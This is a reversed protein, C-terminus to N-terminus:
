FRCILFSTWPYLESLASCDPSLYRMWEPINIDFSTLPFEFLAARLINTVAEGAIEGTVSIVSVSYKGELEAKLASNEKNACNLVVVCPKGAGKYSQVAAEEAAADRGEDTTVVVGFSAAQASDTISVTLNDEAFVATFKDALSTNTGIETVGIAVSGCRTAIDEYVNNELM